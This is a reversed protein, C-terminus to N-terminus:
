SDVREELQNHTATTGLVTPQKQRIVDLLAVLGAVTERLEYWRAARYRRIDASAGVSDLGLSNCTFLARPLHFGQTVLIASSVGFTHRARYCTDYTRLGGHDTLIDHAPIGREIAYAMMASPEDYGEAQSDGSVIIREVVGNKYLQIATAMRDRLVSSLRGGRFVAAGFVIAVREPPVETVPYIHQVYHRKVTFRWFIPFAVLGALIAFAGLYAKRRRNLGPRKKRETTRGGDMELWVRKSNMLVVQQLHSLLM